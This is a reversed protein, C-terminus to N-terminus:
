YTSKGSSDPLTSDLKVEIDDNLKNHVLLASRVTVVKRASGEISVDFVIRAPPVERYQFSFTIYLINYLYYLSQMFCFYYTHIFVPKYYKIVM